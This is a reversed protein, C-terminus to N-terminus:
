PTSSGFVQFAAFLPVVAQISDGSLVCGSLAVLVILVKFILNRGENDKSSAM